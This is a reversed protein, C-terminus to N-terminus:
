KVEEVITKALNAMTANLRYFSRKVGRKEETKNDISYGQKRLDSIRTAPSLSGAKRALLPMPVWEGANGLLIALMKRAQSQNTRTKM